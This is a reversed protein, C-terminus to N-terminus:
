NSGKLADVRKRFVGMVERYLADKLIGDENGADVNPNDNIEIIYYQDGVQKLDVGYFGDGILNAAELSLNVVEDPVEGLALAQTKGELTRKEDRKIIQWHDPAMYYKCVFLPRRDVIGVRWDFETPLFEQALILESSALLERAKNYFEDPTSTKTVGLSFAGDPQKLICPLGLTPIVQDINGKHVILTKPITLHHRNLLETLFIKNTCKLISDPHDIVVMNAAVAQRALQYTYHNVDTNARIFLADFETLRHADHQTILEAHMGVTDAAEVFKEIAGTNSPYVKAGPEHLIAISPQRRSPKGARIRNEQLFNQAANIFLSHHGNTLRDVKGPYASTLHWRDPYRKFEVHLLPTRSMKFLQDTLFELENGHARGFVIDFSIEEDEVSALSATILGGLKEDATKVFEDSQLSKIAEVDPLPQHKRAEALLSVYYGHTEYDYSNCLNFVKTAQNNGYESQLLYEDAPVTAIGPIECRLTGSESVVFLVKM